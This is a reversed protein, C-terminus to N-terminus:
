ATVQFLAPRVEPPGQPKAWRLFLLLQDQRRYAHGSGLGAGGVDVVVIRMTGEEASQSTRAGTVKNVGPGAAAAQVATGIKARM